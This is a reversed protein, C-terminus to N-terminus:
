AKIEPPPATPDDPPRHLQWATYDADLITQAARAYDIVTAGDGAAAAAAAAEGREGILAELRALSHAYLAANREDQDMLTRASAYALLASAIAGLGLQWRAPEDVLQLWSALADPDAPWLGFADIGGVGISLMTALMAMARPLSLSAAARGHRRAASRFFAQQYAVHAQNFLGLKQPWLESAAVEAPVSARVLDGFLKGRLREAEARTTLWRGVTQRKGLLWVIYLSIINADAQLVSIMHRADPSLWESVPLLMAAAISTALTALLLAIGGWRKYRGQAQLATADAAEYAALRDAFAQSGTLQRLPAAAPLSAVFADIRQRQHRDTDRGSGGGAEIAAAPTLWAADALAADPRDVPTAGISHLWRVLEGLAAEGFPIDGTEGQAVEPRAPLRAGLAVRIGNDAHEIRIDARSWGQSALYDRLAAASREDPMSHTIFIQPV